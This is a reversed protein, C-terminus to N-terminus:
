GRADAASVALVFALRAREARATVRWCGERAFRLRSPMYNPLTRRGRALVYTQTSGDLRATISVRRGATRAFWWLFKTSISGDAHIAGATTGPPLPPSQTTVVLRGDRPLTVRVKGSGYWGGSALTGPPLKGDPVTVPCAPDAQRARGNTEDSGPLVVLGLVAAAGAAVIASVRPVSRLARM